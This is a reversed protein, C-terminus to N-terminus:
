VTRWVGQLKKTKNKNQDQERLVDGAFGTLASPAVLQLHTSSFSVQLILGSLSLDGRFSKLDSRFPTYGVKLRVQRTLTVRSTSPPDVRSTRPPRVRSTSPPDCMLHPATLVDLAHHDVRSTRRPNHTM